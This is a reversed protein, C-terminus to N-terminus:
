KVKFSVNKMITFRTVNLLQHTAQMIQHYNFQQVTM